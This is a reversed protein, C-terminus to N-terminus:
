SKAFPARRQRRAAMRALKSAAKGSVGPSQLRDSGAPAQRLSVLFEAFAPDAVFRRAPALARPPPYGAWVPLIM